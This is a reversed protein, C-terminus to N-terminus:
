QSRRRRKCWGMVLFPMMAPMGGGCTQAADTPPPGGAGGGGDGVDDEEAACGDAPDDPCSDNCDAIGDGDDDLSYIYAGGSDPM